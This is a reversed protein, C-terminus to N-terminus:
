FHMLISIQPGLFEELEGPEEGHGGRIGMDAAQTRCQDMKIYPMSPKEQTQGPILDPEETNSRIVM